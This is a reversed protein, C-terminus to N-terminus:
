SAEKFKIMPRLSFYCHARGDDTRYSIPNIKTASYSDTTDKRVSIPIYRSWWSSSKVGYFLESTQRYGDMRYEPFIMDTGNNQLTNFITLQADNSGHWVDVNQNVIRENLTGNTIISTYATQDLLGIEVVGGGM